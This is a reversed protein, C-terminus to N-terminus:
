IINKNIAIGNYKNFFNSSTVANEFTFIQSKKKKAKGV